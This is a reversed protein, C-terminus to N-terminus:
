CCVSRDGVRPSGFDESQTTLLPRNCQRREYAGSSLPTRFTCTSKHYEYGGKHIGRTAYKAKGKQGQAFESEGWQLARGWGCNARDEM